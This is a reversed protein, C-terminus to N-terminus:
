MKNQMPSPPGAPAAPQLRAVIVAAIAVRARRRHAEAGLFRQAPLWQVLVTAPDIGASPRLLARLRAMQAALDRTEGAYFPPPDGTGPAAVGQTDATDWLVYWGPVAPAALDALAVRPASRLAALVQGTITPM